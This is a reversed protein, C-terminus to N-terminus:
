EPCSQLLERHLENLTLPNHDRETLLAECKRYHKWANNPDLRLLYLASLYYEVTPNKPDLQHYKQLIELCERMRHLQLQTVALHLLGARFQPFQFLLEELENKKKLLAEHTDEVYHFLKKLGEINIKGDLYDEAITEKSVAYEPLYDKVQSLLTKGIELHGLFLHQYGMLETLLKDEPLYLWAKQYSKLAKEFQENKWFVAAQNMHALGIVERITRQQLSRTDIDLYEEDDIHIGRATTEINIVEKDSRHCIYIHGPPTIMELSLNLRQALCLYLISVGLCVGKRSDLVSPLFTYIDIEKTSVEQPPFRFGMEEFIFQNIARIKEKPSAQMPIKILIQLAMLDLLAEYSRIKRETEPFDGMQSLFLGRSLDIEQDSLTLVESESGAKSGKLLRNPLFEALKEIAQLQDDGLVLIPQNAPKNMLTIIGEIIENTFPVLHVSSITTKQQSFLNKVHELALYGESSNPYLQYFALHKPISQPDLSNYLTHIKQPSSAIASCSSIFCFFLFSFAKKM